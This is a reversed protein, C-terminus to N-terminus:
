KRNELFENVYKIDKKHRSRETCQDNKKYISIVEKIKENSFDDLHSKFFHMFSDASDFGYFTPISKVMIIIFENFDFNSNHKVSDFIDEIYIANQFEKEEKFKDYAKVTNKPYLIEYYKLGKPTELITNSIYSFLDDDVKIIDMVTQFSTILDLLMDFKTKDEKVFDVTIKSFIDMIM